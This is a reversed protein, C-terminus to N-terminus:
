FRALPVLRVQANEDDVIRMFGPIQKLRNQLAGPEARQHRDRSSLFAKVQQFDALM